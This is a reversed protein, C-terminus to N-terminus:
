YYWHGATTFNNGRLSVGSTTYPFLSLTNCCTQYYLATPLLAFLCPCVESCLCQTHIHTCRKHLNFVYETGCCMLGKSHTLFSRHNWIEKIKHKGKQSSDVCGWWWWDGKLFSQSDRREKQSETKTMTTLFVKRHLPSSIYHKFRKAEIECAVPSWLREIGGSTSSM